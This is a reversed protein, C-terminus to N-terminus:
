GLDPLFPEGQLAQVFTFAILGVYAASAARSRGQRLAVAGCRPDLWDSLEHLPRLLREVDPIEITPTSFRRGSGTSTITASM